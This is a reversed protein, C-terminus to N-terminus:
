EALKLGGSHKQSEFLCKPNVTSTGILVRTIDSPCLGTDFDSSLLSTNFEIFSLTSVLAFQGGVKSPGIQVTMANRTPNVTQTIIDLITNVRSNESVPCSTSLRHLM